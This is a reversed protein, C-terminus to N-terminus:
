CLLSISKRIVGKAKLEEIAQKEQEAYALTVRRPARKIPAAYGKNITHEALHTLGLDWEGKSFVGQFKNLLCTVRQKEPDKM